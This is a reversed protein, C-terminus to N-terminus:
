GDECCLSNHIVGMLSDLDYLLWERRTNIVKGSMVFVRRRNITLLKLHLVVTRANTHSAGHHNNYYKFSSSTTTRQLMGVLINGTYLQFHYKFTSTLVFFLKVFHDLLM